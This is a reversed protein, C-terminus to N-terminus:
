DYYPISWQDEKAQAKKEGLSYLEFFFNKLEVDSLSLLYSDFNKAKSKTLWPLEEGSLKKYFTAVQSNRCKENEM